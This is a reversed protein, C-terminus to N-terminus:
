AADIMGLLGGVIANDACGPKLRSSLVEFTLYSSAEDSYIYGSNSRGNTLTSLITFKEPSADLVRQGITTFVEGNVAPLYLEGIRVLSLGIVVDEGDVYTGPQGARGEDTRTRGPCTVSSQHGSVTGDVTWRTLDRNVSLVEEGLLQGMSQSLQVQQELLLATRPDNRDLGEGGPPMANSIDEGRAAYAAIRIDRLEYTQEFFLPNQDGAAASSFVAVTGDGLSNEIYTSAAGPYDASIRDQMGNTVAHMAYNYYVAIPKGDLTQFSAVSVTKDSPGSRNPGEWWTGTERDIINRNVNLHSSGTGVSMRAPQAAALAETASRVIGDVYGDQNARGASHSHTAALLVNEAPVGLEADLRQTVAAWLDNSVGGADVTILMATGSDGQVAISRAFLPDLVDTYRAPLQEATPSVDVKAAGVRLSGPESPPTTPAGSTSSGGSSSTADTTGASTESGSGDTAPSTGEDSSTTEAASTTSAGSTTSSAGGPGAPACAAAALLGLVTSATVILRRRGSRRSSSTM